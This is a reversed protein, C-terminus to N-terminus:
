PIKEVDETECSFIEIFTVIFLFKPISFFNNMSFKTPIHHILRCLIFFKCLNENTFLFIPIQLM